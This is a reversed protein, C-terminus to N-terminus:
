TAQHPRRLWVRALEDRLLRLIRRHPARHRNRLHVVGFVSQPIEPARRVLRFRGSSILPDVSNSPLYTTGGLEHVIGAVVSTEGSSVPAGSLHPLVEQHTRAFAPSYNPLIYDAPRVESIQDTLTSVMQYTIEGLSEFHLDPDPRPTFLVALDLQGLGVDHCMQVSFDAEMYIAAEPLAARIVALWAGIRDGVLDNQIGIRLTIAADTTDRVALLAKKWGMRLARAHPEFRLGATTLATGARSRTFLRTGLEAELAKIRGSVTSQTVGLREATRNFSRSDCLDLFTDIQDTQM